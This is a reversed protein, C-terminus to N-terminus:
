ASKRTIEPEDWSLHAMTKQLAEMCLYRVQWPRESDYWKMVDRPDVGPVALSEVKKYCYENDDWRAQYFLVVGGKELTLDFPMKRAVLELEILVKLGTTSSFEMETLGDRLEVVKRANTKKVLTSAGGSIKLLELTSRKIVLKGTM